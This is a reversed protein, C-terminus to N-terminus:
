LAKDDLQKLWPPSIFSPIGDAPEDEGHRALYERLTM